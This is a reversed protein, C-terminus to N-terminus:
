PLMRWIGHAVLGANALSMRTWFRRHGVALLNFAFTMPLVARAASWYGKWVSDGLVWFLVAFSAGIRWWYEAPRPRLLLGLSQSALGVAGILGLLYRSDFNGRALQGLCIWCHRVFALGPWDFNGRGLANGGPIVWSLWAVWLLLPLVACACLLATRYIPQKGRAGDPWLVTIGLLSTERVLGSLGLAGVAAWTREKRMAIVALTLLLVGALDSLSQRVNDLAGITMMCGLWTAIASPTPADRLERMILWALVLWFVVNQLAYVQLITWPDGGGIVHATWALFIRRGRYAPNDLADRVEPRRLDPDVALQAGFQGDFGPESLKALPLPRLAPLREDFRQTGFSLLSTFGTRSDWRVAVMALVFLAAIIVSKGLSPRWWAAAEPELDPPAPESPM